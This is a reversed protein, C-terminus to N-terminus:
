NDRAMGGYRDSITGSIEHRAAIIASELLEVALELRELVDIMELLDQLREQEVLVASLATGIADALEGPDDPMPIRRLYEGRSTLQLSVLTSYHERSQQILSKPVDTMQKDPYEVDAWLYPRDHHLTVIRFRREGVTSLQLWLPSDPEVSRIRATTGLDYPIAPGGVEEGERILVVGFPESAQLCESVLQRYRQEFIQLPLTMGPFLVTRLPFLRLDM